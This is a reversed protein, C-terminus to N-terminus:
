LQKILWSLFSNVIFVVVVESGPNTGPSGPRYAMGARRAEPAFVDAMKGVDCLSTQNDHLICRTGKGSDGSLGHPTIDIGGPRTITLQNSTDPGVKGMPNDEIGVSAAKLMGPIRRAPIEYEAIDLTLETEPKLKM